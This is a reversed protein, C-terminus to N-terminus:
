FHFLREDPKKEIPYLKHHPYQGVALHGRPVDQAILLTNAGIVAHDGIKCDGILTTNAYLTVDKGIQPYKFEGVKGGITVGQYIALFNDFSGNGIVTGVPHVFLFVEPLKVKHYIDLSHKIKNFYFFRNAYNENNITHIAEQSLLYIYMAYHDSHLYNFSDEFNQSYYKNNIHKFTKSLRLLAKETIHLWEKESLTVGDPFETEIQKKTYQSLFKILQQMNQGINLQSFFAIGIYINFM